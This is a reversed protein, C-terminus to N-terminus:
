VENEAPPNGDRGQRWMKLRLGAYMCLAPLLAALYLISVTNLESTSYHLPGSGKFLESAVFVIFISPANIILAVLGIPSTSNPFVETGVVHFAHLIGVVVILLIPLYIVSLLNNKLLPMLFLYAFLVYLGMVAFIGGFVVLPSETSLSVLVFSLVLALVISLFVVAGHIALARFNNANIKACLNKGNM